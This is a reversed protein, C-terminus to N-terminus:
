WENRDFVAEVHFRRVNDCVAKGVLLYTAAGNLGTMFHNAPKPSNLTLFIRQGFPREAQPKRVQIVVVNFILEVAPVDKTNVYQSGRPMENRRFVEAPHKCYTSRPYM